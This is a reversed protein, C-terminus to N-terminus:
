QQRRLPALIIRGSTNQNIVIRYPLKRVTDAHFSACTELEREIDFTGNGSLYLERVADFDLWPVDLLKRVATDADFQVMTQLDREMDATFSVSGVQLVREADALFSTDIGLTREADFYAVIDGSYAAREDLEIERNSIIVNSFLTGGSGDCQLYIDTFDQGQNVNGTYVYLLGEDATFAEIIGDTTGAKMHLLFTQLQYAKATGIPQQVNTDNSFMAIEGTTQATIGTAGNTGENYARWRYSSSFYVDFKMWIENSVPIDFCKSRSNQYFAEEFISKTTDVQLTQGMGTLLLDATGYNTYKWESQPDRVRRKADAFFQITEYHNQSPPAFMTPHLMIGDYICFNDITGEYYYTDSAKYNARGLFVYNYHTQPINASIADIFRGNIYFSLFKNSHDYDIEFHFLTGKVAMSTQSSTGNYILYFGNGGRHLVIAGSGNTGYSNFISFLRAYDGINSSMFSWGCITFNQGGLTIGGDMSVYQGTEYNCTVHSELQLANGTASNAASITPSNWATWSNGQTDQTPSSDFPLFSVMNETVAPVKSPSFLANGEQVMFEDISGVLGQTISSALAGIVINYKRRDFLECDNKWAVLAGNIYLRMKSTGNAYASYSLVFYVLNGVSSTSETINTGYDRGTDHDMSVWFRLKSPYEASKMLTVLFYGTTPNVINFIRANNPSSPDVYVWGSVTFDRGGLTIGTRAIRSSGDLQLANGHFANTTGISPNGTTTWTGGKVDITPSKDFPLWAVVRSLDVM